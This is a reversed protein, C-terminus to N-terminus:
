GRRGLVVVSGGDIPTGMLTSFVRVADMATANALHTVHGANTQYGTQMPKIPDTKNFRRLVWFPNYAGLGFGTAGIASTLSAGNSTAYGTDVFITGGTHGLQLTRGPSGIGTATLGVGYIELDVYAGLGTVTIAGGSITSFTGVLELGSAAQADMAQKVRLPTMRKTNNVGALAEAETAAAESLIFTGAGQDFTAIAIWASNAANRMRLVNASTDYWWQYAFTTAPATAGSNNTAISGFIANLQTRVAPANSNPVNYNSQSM